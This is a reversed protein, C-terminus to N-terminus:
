DDMRQFQYQNRFAKDFDFVEDFDTRHDNETKTMEGIEILQFVIEGFDSTSRVGWNKLVLPAMLGFMEQAYGRIAECLQQPTFHPPLEDIEGPDNQSNEAKESASSHGGCSSHQGSEPPEGRASAARRRGRKLEAYALTQHVFLYAEVRYRGDREALDAIRKLSKQLAHSTM